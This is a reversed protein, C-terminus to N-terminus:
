RRWVFAGLLGGVGLLILVIPAVLGWNLNLEFLFVATVALLVLGTLFPGIVGASLTGGNNEFHRWAGAFSGFAPILIFLAWWNNLTFTGLNQLLLVVGLAVFVAGIIWAGSGSSARREARMTRRQDRAERRQERWDPAPTNTPQNESM